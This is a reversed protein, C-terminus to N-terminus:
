LSRRIEDLFTSVRSFEIEREWKKSKEQAGATGLNSESKVEQNLGDCYVYEQIFKILEKNSVGENEVKNGVKRTYDDLMATNPNNSRASLAEFLARVYDIYILYNNNEVIEDPKNAFVGWQEYAHGM